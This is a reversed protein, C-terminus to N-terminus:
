APRVLRDSLEVADRRRGAHVDLRQRQDVQHNPLLVSDVDLGPGRRCGAARRPGTRLAQPLGVAPAGDARHDRGDRDGGVPLATRAGREPRRHRPRRLHACRPQGARFPDMRPRLGRQLHRNREASGVGPGAAPYRHHADPRPIQPLAADHHAARGRRPRTQRCRGGPDRRRDLRGVHWLSAPDCIRSGVARRCRRGPRHGQRWWRLPRPRSETRPGRGFQLRQASWRWSQRTASRSTM